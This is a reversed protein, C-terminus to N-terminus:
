REAVRTLLTGRPLRSAGLHGLIERVTDGAGLLRGDLVAVWKGPFEDEHEDLWRRSASQSRRLESDSSRVSVRPPELLREIRALEPDTPYWARGLAVIERCLTVREHSFAHLAARAVDAALLGTRPPPDWRAPMPTPMRVDISGFRLVWEPEDLLGELESALGEAAILVQERWVDSASTEGVSADLLLVLLADLAAQRELFGVFGPGPELPRGQALAAFLSGDIASLRDSLARVRAPSVFWRLDAFSRLGAASAQLLLDEAQLGSDGAALVLASRVAVCGRVLAHFAEREFPRGVISAALERVIELHLVVLERSRPTLAPLARPQVAAWNTAVQAAM